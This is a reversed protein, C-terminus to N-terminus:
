VYPSQVERSASNSCYIFVQAWLTIYTFSVKNHVWNAPPHDSDKVCLSLEGTERLHIPSSCISFGGVTDVGLIFM